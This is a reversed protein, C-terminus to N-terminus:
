KEWMYLAAHGSDVIYDMGEFFNMGVLCVADRLDVAVEIDKRIGGINVERTVTPCSITGSITDFTRHPANQLNDSGTSAIVKSPLVTVSAGTDFLARCGIVGNPGSIEIPLALHSQVKECDITISNFRTFSSGQEASLAMLKKPFPKGSALKKLLSKDFFLYSKHRKDFVAVDSLYAGCYHVIPKLASLFKNTPPRDSNHPMFILLIIHTFGEAKVDCSWGDPLAEKSIRKVLEIITQNQINFVRDFVTTGTAQYKRREYQNELKRLKQVYEVKVRTRNKEEKARIRNPKKANEQVFYLTELGWITLSAILLITLVKPLSM